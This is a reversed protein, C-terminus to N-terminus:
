KLSIKKKLLLDTLFFLGVSLAAAIFMQSLNITAAENINTFSVKLLRMQVIFPLAEGIWKIANVCLAGTLIAFAFMWFGPKLSFPRVHSITIIFIIAMMILLLFAFIQIFFILAFRLVDGFSAFSVMGSLQDQLSASQENGMLSMMDAAHHFIRRYNQFSVFIVGMAVGASLLLWVFGTIFKSFLNSTSSVPLSFTLYGQNSFLSRNINMLVFVMSVVQIVAGLVILLMNLLMGAIFQGEGITDGLSLLTVVGSVLIAGGLLPVFSRGTQIFENKLLKGLM